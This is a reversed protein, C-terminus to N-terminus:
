AVKQCSVKEKPSKIGYIECLELWEKTITKIDLKEDLLAKGINKLHHETNHVETDRDECHLCRYENYASEDFDDYPGDLENFFM